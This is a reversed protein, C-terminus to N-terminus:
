DFLDGYRNPKEDDFSFPLPVFANKQTTNKAFNLKGAKAYKTIIKDLKAELEECTLKEFEAKNEESTIATYEETERISEYSESNILENKKKDNEAKKYTALEQETEAYKAKMNAEEEDTAWCAHVAVRDGTLAFDNGNREYSQRYANNSFYGYMVVINEDTYVDVGYWDNDKESYTDNALRYLAYQIDSLKLSFKINKGDPTTVSYENSNTNDNDPEKQGFVEEFKATLEDDSMNSYDFTVDEASKNYKKLLEEFKNLTDKGGKTSNDSFNKITNNLEKVADLLEKNSFFSNNEKSFDAITIHANEMGPHIREGSADYGLITVGNFVFEDINLNKDQANFSMEQIDIEISVYVENGNSEERQLIEAAKTYEEWVQGNVVTYDKNNEDNHEYHANCSEPVIGVAREEFIVDGNEDEYFEHGAFQWEDNVKHIFGLIPRNKFSELAKDMSEKSINSKNLNKGVHCAYLTVPLLGKTADYDNQEFKLKGDLQVVISTNDNKSSFKINKNQEVYYNYLDDLSM